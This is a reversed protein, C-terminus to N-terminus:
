EILSLRQLFQDRGKWLSGESELGQAVISLDLRQIESITEVDAPGGDNVPWVLMRVVLGHTLAKDLNLDITPDLDIALRGEARTVTGLIEFPRQVM